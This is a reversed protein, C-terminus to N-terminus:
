GAKVYRLAYEGLSKLHDLDSSKKM